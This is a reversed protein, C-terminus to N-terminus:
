LVAFIGGPLKLVAVSTIQLFLLLASVWVLVKQWRPRGEQFVVLALVIYIAIMAFKVEIWTSWEWRPTVAILSIAAFLLLGDAFHPLVRVWTEQPAPDGRMMWLGRMFFLAFSAAVFFIHIYKFFIYSM